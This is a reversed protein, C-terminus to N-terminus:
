GRGFRQRLYWAIHKWDHERDDRTFLEKRKRYPAIFSACEGSDDPLWDVLKVQLNATLHYMGGLEQRLTKGFPCTIHCQPLELVQTKRRFVLVDDKVEVMWAHHLFGTLRPHAIGRIHEILRSPCIILVRRCVRALERCAPLPDRIDELTHSCLGLDFSQDEFPWREGACLDLTTYPVRGWDRDQAAVQEAAPYGWCNLRLQEAPPQQIDLIHAAKYFPASGGVDLISGQERRLTELAGAPIWPNRYPILESM